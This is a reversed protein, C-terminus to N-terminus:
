VWKRHAPKKRPRSFKSINIFEDILKFVKKDTIGRNMAKSTAMIHLGEDGSDRCHSIARYLDVTDPRRRLEKEAKIVKASLANKSQAKAGPEPSLEAM